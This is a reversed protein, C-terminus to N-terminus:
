QVTCLAMESVVVMNKKLGSHLMGGMIGADKHNGLPTAGSMITASAHFNGYNGYNYQCKSIFYFMQHAVNRVNVHSHHTSRIKVGFNLYHRLWFIQGKTLHGLSRKNSTKCVYIM